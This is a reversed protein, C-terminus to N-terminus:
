TVQGEGMQKYAEMYRRTHNYVKPGSAQYATMIWCDKNLMRLPFLNSTKSHTWTVDSGVWKADNFGVICSDHSESGGSIAAAATALVNLSFGNSISDMRARGNKIQLRDLCFSLDRQYSLIYNYCFM